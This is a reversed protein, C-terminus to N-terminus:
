MRRAAVTAGISCVLKGIEAQKRPIVEVMELWIGYLSKQLLLKIECRLSNM